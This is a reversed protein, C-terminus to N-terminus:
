STKRNITLPTGEAVNRLFPILGLNVFAQCAPAAHLVGTVVIGRRIIEYKGACFPCSM